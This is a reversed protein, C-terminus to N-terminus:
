GTQEGRASAADYTDRQKDTEDPSHVAISDLVPPVLAPQPVAAVRTQKPATHASATTASNPQAAHDQEASVSERRFARSQEIKHIVRLARKAQLLSTLANDSM